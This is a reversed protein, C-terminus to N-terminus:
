RKKIKSKVERIIKSCEEYNEDVFNLRFNNIGLKFLKSINDIIHLKKYNYVTMICNNFSLVYDNKFRDRLYYKKGNKCINCVGDKHIYTNLPCYESVMAEISGYISAELNPLKNYRAKYSNILSEIKDIDMEYSLTVIKSGLSHLFAVTYSNVANLSYDTIKEDSIAGIDSVLTIDDVVKNKRVPPYALIVNNDDKLSQYLNYDEIYIVDVNNDDCAKYQEM